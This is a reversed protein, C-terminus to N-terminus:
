LSALCHRIILEDYPPFFSTTTSFLRTMASYICWQGKAGALMGCYTNVVLQDTVVAVINFATCLLAIEASDSLCFYCQDM